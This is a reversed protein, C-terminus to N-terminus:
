QVPVRAASVAAHQTQVLSANREYWTTNAHCLHYKQPSAQHRAVFQCLRCKDSAAATAYVRQFGTTLLLLLLLLFCCPAM